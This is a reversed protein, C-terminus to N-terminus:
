RQELKALEKSAQTQEWQKRHPFVFSSPMQHLWCAQEWKKWTFLALHRLAKSLLHMTLYNLFCHLKHTNFSRCYGANSRHQLLSWSCGALPTSPPVLWLLFGGVRETLASYHPFLLAAKTNLIEWDSIATALFIKAKLKDPERKVKSEQHASKSVM